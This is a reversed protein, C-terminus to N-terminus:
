IIHRRQAQFRILINEYFPINLKTSLSEGFTTVQNYGRKKLKKKHLPVPINCDINKIRNSTIIEDGLWNGILVGVQQQNNYKLNHILQQVKGKKLFYFM